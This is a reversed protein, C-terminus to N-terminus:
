EEDKKPTVDIVGSNYEKSRKLFEEMQSMFGAEQGKNEKETLENLNMIIDVLDKKSASALDGSEVAKNFKANKIAVLTRINDAKLAEAAQLTMQNVYDLFEGNKLWHKITKVPIGKEKACEEPTLGEIGIMQAIEYKEFSWKVPKVPTLSQETEFPELQSMDNKPDEM